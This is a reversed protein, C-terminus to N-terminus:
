PTLRGKWLESADPNIKIKRINKGQSYMKESNIKYILIKFSLIHLTVGKKELYPPTVLIVAMIQKLRLLFATDGEICGGDRAATEEQGGSGGAGADLVCESVCTIHNYV